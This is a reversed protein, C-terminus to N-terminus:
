RDHLAKAIAARNAEIQGEILARVNRAVLPLFRLASELKATSQDLEILLEPAAAALRINAKAEPYEAFDTSLEAPGCSTPKGNMLLYGDEKDITWPGTTFQTKM